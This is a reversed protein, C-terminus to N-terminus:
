SLHERFFGVTRDWSRKAHEEHHTGLRDTDNFFAHGAGDYFEFEVEAGASSIEEELAKADEVSV